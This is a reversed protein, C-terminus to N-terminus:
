QPEDSGFVTEWCANLWNQFVEISPSSIVFPPLKNWPEVIRASFVAKRCALYFSRHRLKLDHGCLRSCSPLTFFIDQPFNWLCSNSWGATKTKSPFLNLRYLRQIFPFHYLGKVMRTVLRQFSDTHHIDKMSYSSTVQIAYELHLRVLPYYLPFFVVPMLNVFLRNVLFLGTGAKKVAAICHASHKFSCELLM